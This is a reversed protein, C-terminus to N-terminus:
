VASHSLWWSLLGSDGDISYDDARRRGWVLLQLDSSTAARVTVDGPEPSRRYSFGGPELTVVWGAGSDAQWSLTEGDGTLERAPAGGRAYPLLDFLEEVGDAAIDEDIAPAIGIAIQADAHHVVTEHLQRRSWFRVHRDGGWAWMPADPEQGSLAEQLIEAGRALWAPYDARHEPEGFDMERRHYREPSLDRVMAAAWRHIAGTHAILAGLDWGPCTPTPVSMDHGTVTKAMRNIEDGVARTHDAHTWTRM